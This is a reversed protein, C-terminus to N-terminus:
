QLIFEFTNGKITLTAKDDCQGGNPYAFDITRTPLGEPTLEIIGSTIWRCSMKRVIPNSAPVNVDFKKGNRNTGNASGYTTFEDDFGNIITSAGATQTVTRNCNWDITWGTAWCKGQSVSYSYSTNSNKVVTITGGYNIASAGPSTVSYNTPVITMNAGTSDWSESITVILKGARTKGDNSVCGTGYDITITRPWANTAIATSDPPTITTCGFLLSPSTSTNAYRHVGPENIAFSNTEPFVRSFEGEALSNDTSSQTETDPEEKKCSNLSFAVAGLLLMGKFTLKKM